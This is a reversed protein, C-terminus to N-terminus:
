YPRIESPPVHPPTPQSAMIMKQFPCMIYMNYRKGGDLSILNLWLLGQGIPGLTLVRPTYELTVKFVKYGDSFHDRRHSSTAAVFILDLLAYGNPIQEGGTIEFHLDAPRVDLGRRVGLFNALKQSLFAVPVNALHETPQTSVCFDEGLAKRTRLHADAVFAMAPWCFDDLCHDFGKHVMGIEM